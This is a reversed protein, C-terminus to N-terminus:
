SQGGKSYNTRDARENPFTPPAVTPWASGLQRSIPKPSFTNPASVEQQSVEGWLVVVLLIGFLFTAWLVSEMGSDPSPPAQEGRPRDSPALFMTEGAPLVRANKGQEKLRTPKTM